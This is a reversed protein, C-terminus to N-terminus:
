MMPIYAPDVSPSIQFRKGGDIQSLKFGVIAHATKFNLDEANAGSDVIYTFNFAYTEGPNVTVLETNTATGIESLAVMYTGDRGYDPAEVPRHSPFAWRPAEIDQPEEGTSGLGSFGTIYPVLDGTASSTASDMSVVVPASGTNTFRAQTSASSGPMLGTFDGLNITPSDSTITSGNLEIGWSAASLNTDTTNGQSYLSLAGFAGAGAVLVALGGAVLRRGRKVKTGSPKSQHITSM